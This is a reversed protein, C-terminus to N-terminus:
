QMEVCRQKYLLSLLSSMLSNTYTLTLTYSDTLTRLPRMDLNHWHWLLNGLNPIARWSLSPTLPTCLGLCCYFFSPLSLSHHSLHCHPPIYPVIILFSPSSHCHHSIYPLLVIFLFSPSLYFINCKLLQDISNHDQFLFLLIKCNGKGRENIM